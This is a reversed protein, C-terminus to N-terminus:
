IDQIIYLTANNECGAHKRVNQSHIKCTCMKVISYGNVM